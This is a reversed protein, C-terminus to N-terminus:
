PITFRPRREHHIQRRQEQKQLPALTRAQRIGAQMLPQLRDRRLELIKASPATRGQLHPTGM